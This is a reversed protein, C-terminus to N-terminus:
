RSLVWSHLVTLTVVSGVWVAIYSYSVGCVVSVFVRLWVLLLGCLCGGRLSFGQAVVWAVAIGAAAVVYGLGQTLGAWEICLIVAGCSRLGLFRGYWFYGSQQRVPVLGSALGLRGGGGEGMFCKLYTFCGGWTLVGGVLGARRSTWGLLGRGGQM